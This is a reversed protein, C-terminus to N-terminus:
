FDFWISYYYLPIFDFPLGVEGGLVCKKKKEMHFIKTLTWFIKYLWTRKELNIRPALFSAWPDWVIDDILDSDETEKRPNKKKSTYPKWKNVNGYKHSSIISNRGKKKREEKLFKTWKILLLSHSKISSHLKALLGFAQTKNIFSFTLHISIESSNQHM